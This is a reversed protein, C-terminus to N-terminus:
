YNDVADELGEDLERFRQHAYYALAIGFTLVVIAFLVVLWIPAGLFYLITPVIAEWLCVLVVILVVSMKEGMKRMHRANAVLYKIPPIVFDSCPRRHKRKHPRVDDTAGGRDFPGPGYQAPQMPEAPSGTTGGLPGVM